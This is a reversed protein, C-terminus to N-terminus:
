RERQPQKAGDHAGEPWAERLSRTTLFGRRHLKGSGRNVEMEGGRRRRVTESRHLDGREELGLQERELETANADRFGLQALFEFVPLWSRLSPIPYRSEQWCGGRPGAEDAAQGSM